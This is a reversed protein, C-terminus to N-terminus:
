SWDISDLCDVSVVVGRHVQFDTHISRNSRPRSRDLAARANFRVRHCDNMWCPSTTQKDCWPQVDKKHM